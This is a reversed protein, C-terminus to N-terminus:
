LRGAYGHRCFFTLEAWVIIKKRELRGARDRERERERGGGPGQREGGEGIGGWAGLGAQKQGRLAGVCSHWFDRTTDVALVM